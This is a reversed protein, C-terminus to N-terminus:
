SGSQAGTSGPGLTFWFVGSALIFFAPVGARLTTKRM